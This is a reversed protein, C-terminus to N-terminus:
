PEYLEVFKLKAMRQFDADLSWVLAGAEQAMAAILLDGVGFSQGRETGHIAWQDMQKWTEDTPYAVPLATLIRRLTQRHVPRVGGLLETRVPAPLLIEDMDLLASFAAAEASTRRRLVSVWVSSDVVIM